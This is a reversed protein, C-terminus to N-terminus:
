IEDEDDFFRITVEFPGEFQEIIIRREDFAILFFKERELDRHFSIFSFLEEDIYTTIERISEEDLGFHNAVRRIAGRVREKNSLISNYDRLIGALDRTFARLREKDSLVARIENILRKESVSMPVIILRM